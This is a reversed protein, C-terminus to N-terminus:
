AKAEERYFHSMNIVAQYPSYTSETTPTLLVKKGSM